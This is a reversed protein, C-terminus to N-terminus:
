ETGKDKDKDKNREAGAPKVKQRNVEALAVVGGLNMTDLVSSPVIVM